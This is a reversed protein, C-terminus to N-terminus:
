STLGDMTKGHLRRADNAKKVIVATRVMEELAIACSFGSSFGAVGDVAAAGRTGAVGVVGSEVVSPATLM